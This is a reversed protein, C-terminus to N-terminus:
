SRNELDFNIKSFPLALDDKRESRIARYLNKDCMDEIMEFDREAYAEVFQKYAFLFGEEYNANEKTPFKVGENM